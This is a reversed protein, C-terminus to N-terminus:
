FSTKFMSSILMILVIVILGSLALLWWAGKRKFDIKWKSCCSLFFLIITEIYLADYMISPIERKLLLGIIIAIANLIIVVLVIIQPKM